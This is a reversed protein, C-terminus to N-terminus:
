YVPDSFVIRNQIKSYMFNTHHIDIDGWSCDSCKNAIFKLTNFDILKFDFDYEEINQLFQDIHEGSVIQEGSRPNMRLLRDIEAEMERSVDPELVELREIENLYIDSFWTEDCFECGDCDLDDHTSGGFSQYVIPVALGRNQCYELINHSNDSTTLRLINKGYPFIEASSGWTLRKIGSLIEAFKYQPLADM